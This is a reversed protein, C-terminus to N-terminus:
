GAPLASGPLVDAHNAMMRRAAGLNEGAVRRAREYIADRQRIALAALREGLATNSVTFLQPREYVARAARPRTRCDLRHAARQPLAGQLFRRAGHRAATARGIEDGPRPLDSPLGRRLCLRHRSRRLFRAPRGIAERWVAGTPNHPSNVLLFRTHGDVLARIEDHDIAFGNEARLHYRRVEIGLSDALVTNAPFAPDPLIM